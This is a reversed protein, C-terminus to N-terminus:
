RFIERLPREYRDKIARVVSAPDDSHLVHVILKRRDASFESSVTGPTMTVISALLTLALPQELELPVEVFTPRLRGSPGLVLRAVVINAVVIDWTVLMGLRFARLFGGAGRLKAADWMFRRTLLPIGVALALALLLQAMSPRNLLLWALGVFVSILPHPFLRNM